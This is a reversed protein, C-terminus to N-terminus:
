LPELCVALLQLHAQDASVCKLKADAHIFEVKTQKNTPRYPHFSFHKESSLSQAKQTISLCEAVSSGCQGGNSLM